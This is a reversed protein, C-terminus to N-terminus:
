SKVPSLARPGHSGHICDEAPFYSRAWIFSFDILPFVKHFACRHHHQETVLPRRFAFTVLYPHAGKGKARSIAEVPLTKGSHQDVELQLDDYQVYVTGPLVAAEVDTVNYPSALTSRQVHYCSVASRVSCGSTQNFGIIMTLQDPVRNIASQLSLNNFPEEPNYVDTNGSATKRDRLQRADMTFHVNWDHTANYEIYSQAKQKNHCLEKRKGARVM